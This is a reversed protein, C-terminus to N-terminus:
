YLLFQHLVWEVVPPFPRALAARSTPPKSHPIITNAEVNLAPQEKEISDTVPPFHIFSRRVIRTPSLSVSGCLFCAHTDVLLLRQVALTQSRHRQCCPRRLHPNALKCPGVLLAGTNRRQEIGEGPNQCAVTEAAPHLRKELGSFLAFRDQPAQSSM